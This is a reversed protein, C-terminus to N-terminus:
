KLCCKKYKKGSGCPCPDNRGVKPGTRIIQKPAPPAGDEFYWTDNKKIFTAIEHHKRSTGKDSFHAIFEVSGTTDDATGADTNLIELKEWDSNEAWERTTKDDHDSRRSPLLSDRIFDINAKTYASYRARMCEEATTAKRTDTIIPECCDTYTKETGCPCASM